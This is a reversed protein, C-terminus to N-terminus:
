DDMISFRDFIYLVITIIFLLAQVQCTTFRESLLFQFFFIQNHVFYHQYIMFLSLQENKKLFIYTTKTYTLSINHTHKQKNTFLLYTYHLICSQIRHSLKLHIYRYM